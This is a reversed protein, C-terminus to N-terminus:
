TSSGLLCYNIQSTVWFASIPSISCSVSHFFALLMNIISYKSNWGVPSRQLLQLCAECNGKRFLSPAPVKTWWKCRSNNSAAGLLHERQCQWGGCAGVSCHGSFAKPTAFVCVHKCDSPAPNVYVLITLILPIHAPHWCRGSLHCEAKRLLSGEVLVQM